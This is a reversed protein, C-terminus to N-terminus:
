LNLGKRNFISKPMRGELYDVIGQAAECAVRVTCESTLAASHPSVITKPNKLFEENDLPPENTLVDFAAGKLRNENLMKVVYGENIVNGRATNVLYASPKMLSLLKEGIHNRTEDTLPVHITLIDSQKYVDEENSYRVVGPAVVSDSIYPDYIIVKMDFAAMCKRAVQKGIRGYGIIGLTKGEIDVPLYYRRAIKFKGQRTESDLFLLHKTLAGIFAVTHEAVTVTNADPTHLVMIGRKTAAEVDVNDVGTGTRSIVKLNPASDMLEPTFKITTDLMVGTVDKVLRIIESHEGSPIYVVEAAKKLINLADPSVKENVLVKRM